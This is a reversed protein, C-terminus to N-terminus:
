TTLPPPYVGNFLYCSFREEAMGSTKYHEAPDLGAALVDPNLLLYHVPDFFEQSPELKPCLLPAVNVMYNLLALQPLEGSTLRAYIAELFLPFLEQSQATNSEVASANISEELVDEDALFLERFSDALPNDVSDFYTTIAPLHKKVIDATEDLKPQSAINPNTKILLDSIAASLGDDKFISNTIKLLNTEEFSLGRNVKIDDFLEASESENIENLFVELLGSKRYPIFITPIDLDIITKLREDM